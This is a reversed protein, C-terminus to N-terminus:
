VRFGVDSHLVSLPVSSVAKPKLSQKLVRSVEILGHCCWDFMTRIVQVMIMWTAMMMTMTLMMMMMFNDDVVAVVVVVVVLEWFGFFGSSPVRFM